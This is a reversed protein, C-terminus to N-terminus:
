GFAVFPENARTLIRQRAFLQPACGFYHRFERCFSSQHRYCLREAVDKNPLQQALLPLAAMMREELIWAKPSAFLQQECLRQFTRTDLGLVGAMRNVRFGTEWAAARIEDARLVRTGM